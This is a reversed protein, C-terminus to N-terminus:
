EYQDAKAEQQSRLQTTRTSRGRKPEPSEPAEYPDSSLLIDRSRKPATTPKLTQAKIEFLLELEHHFRAWERAMIEEIKAWDETGFDELTQMQRTARSANSKILATRSIYEFELSGVKKKILEHAKLDLGENKAELDKRMVAGVRDSKFMFGDLFIKWTVHVRFDENM